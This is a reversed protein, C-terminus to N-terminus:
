AAAYAMTWKGITKRSFFPLDRCFGSIPSDPQGSGTTGRRPFKRKPSCIVGSRAWSGAFLLFVRSRVLGFPKGAPIEMTRTKENANYSRMRMTRGNDQGSKGGLLIFLFAKNKNTSLKERKWKNIIAAAAWRAFKWSNKSFVLLKIDLHELTFYKMGWTLTHPNEKRGEKFWDIVYWKVQFEQGSM